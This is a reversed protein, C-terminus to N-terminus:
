PSVPEKNHTRPHPELDTLAAVSGAIADLAVAIPDTDITPRGLVRRAEGDDELEAWIRGAAVLRERAATTTGRAAAAFAARRLHPWDRASCCGAATALATAAAHEWAPANGVRVGLPTWWSQPRHGRRAELHQHLMRDWRALSGHDGLRDLSIATLTGDLLRVWGPESAPVGGPAAAAEAFLLGRKSMDSSGSELLAARTPGHDVALSSGVRFRAVADIRGARQTVREDVLTPEPVAVHAQLLALQCREPPSLRELRDAASRPASRRVLRPLSRRMASMSALGSVVIAVVPFQHAAASVDSVHDVGPAAAAALVTSAFIVTAPVWGAGWRLWLVLSCVAVVFVLVAGVWSLEVLGAGPVLLNQVAHEGAHGGFIALGLLAATMAAAAAVRRSRLTAEDVM